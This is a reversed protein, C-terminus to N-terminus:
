YTKFFYFILYHLLLEDKLYYAEKYESTTKIKQLDINWDMDGFYIRCIKIEYFRKSKTNSKDRDVM